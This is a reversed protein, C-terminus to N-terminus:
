DFPDCGYFCDRARTIQPLLDALARVATSKGTGRHGMILVGGISPDIVNLLLALKMESQGVISAFPYVARKIARPRLPPTKSNSPANHNKSMLVFSQTKTSSRDPRRCRKLRFRHAAALMSPEGWESVYDDGFRFSSDHTSERPFSKLENNM